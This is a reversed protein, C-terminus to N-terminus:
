ERRYGRIILYGILIMFLAALNALVSGWFWSGNAVKEVFFYLYIDTGVPLLYFGGFFLLFGFAMVTTGIVGGKRM